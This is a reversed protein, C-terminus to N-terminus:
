GFSLFRDCNKVIEALETQSSYGVGPLLNGKGLGRTEASMACLSIQVKKNLLDDFNSFLKRKSNIIAANYVGDDMLFLDVSHHARIFAITLQYVSFTNQHEPSTTLLMGIKM